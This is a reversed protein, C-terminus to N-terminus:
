EFRRRRARRHLRQQGHRYLGQGPQSLQPIEEYPIVDGWEAEGTGPLPMFSPFTAAFPRERWRNYPFWGFNDQRDIVVFNQGATTVNRVAARAEDVTQAKYLGNLFNLDTDADHLTWRMTLASNNQIDPGAIVPGHHPVYRLTRTEDDQGAVKFTVQKEVFAVDNGNFVVGQGDGSLTEMYVDMFDGATNTMGWAIDENHGIIVGPLGPFSVGAIHVSGEGETKADLHALYWISPNSLTLHPDNALLTKGGALDSGIVWNNSGRDYPRRERNPDRALAEAFLTRARRLRELHARPLARKTASKANASKAATAQPASITSPSPPRRTFIDGAVDPGLAAYADGLQIDLASDNTLNDVLLLVSAVSDLVDWDALVTADLAEHGREATTKAGHEGARLDAIWANVGRTYAEIAAVTDADANAWLVEEIPQGDRTAFILRQQVDIDLALIGVVESLRGRALRRRLDMQFFRDAAHFYGQAAFCDADTKCQVHLVGADDYFVAVSSGLGDIAITEDFEVRNSNDDDGCGALILALSAFLISVKM